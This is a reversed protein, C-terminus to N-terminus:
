HPDLLAVQLNLSRSVHLLSPKRARSKTRGTHDRSRGRPRPSSPVTGPGAGAPIVRCLARSRCQGPSENGQPAPAAPVECGRPRVAATGPRSRCRGLAGAPVRAANSRAGAAEVRRAGLWGATCSGLGSGRLGSGAGPGARRRSRGGGRLGESRAPGPGAGAPEAM